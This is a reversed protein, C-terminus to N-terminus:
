ARERHGGSGFCPARFMGATLFALVLVVGVIVVVFSCVFSRVFSCVFLCVFCFLVFCFRFM